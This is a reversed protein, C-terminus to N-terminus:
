HEGNAYLRRVAAAVAPWRTLSLHPLDLWELKLPDRSELAAQWGVLARPVWVAIEVPVLTVWGNADPDSWEATGRLWDGQEIEPPPTTRGADRLTEKVLALAADRDDQFIDMM